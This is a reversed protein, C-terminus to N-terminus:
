PSAINVLPNIRYFLAWQVVVISHLIEDVGGLSYINVELADIASYLKGRISIIQVSGIMDKLGYLM